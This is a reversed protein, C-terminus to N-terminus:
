ADADDREPNNLYDVSDTIQDLEAHPLGWEAADVYVDGGPDSDALMTTVTTRYETEADARDTYVTASSQGWTVLVLYVTREPHPVEYVEFTCRDPDGESDQAYSYRLRTGADRMQKVIDSFPNPDQGIEALSPWQTADTM